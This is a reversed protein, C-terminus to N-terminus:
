TSRASGQDGARAPPTETTPDETVLFAAVGLLAATPLWAPMATVIGAIAAAILLVRARPSGALTMAVGAAALVLVGVTLIAAVAVIALVAGPTDGPSIRFIDLVGAFDLGALPIPIAAVIGITALAASPLRQSALAM